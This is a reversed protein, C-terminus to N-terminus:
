FRTVVLKSNTKSKKILKKYKSSKKAPAKVKLTKANKYFAKSGIKSIDKSNIRVYKLKKCNYFAQKGITRVYKGITVSVIKKNGKFAADNIGYVRYKEGFLEVTNPLQVKSKTNRARTVYLVPKGKVYRIRYSVSNKTFSYGEAITASKKIEQPVELSEPYRYYVSSSVGDMSTEAAVLRYTSADIYYAYSITYGQETQKASLKYCVVNEGKVKYNTEGEYTFSLTKDVDLSFDETDAETDSAEIPYFYYQGKDSIYGMKAKEDIWITSEGPIYMYTVKTNQDMTVEMFLEGNIVMGVEIVKIEKMANEVENLISDARSDAAQVKGGLVILLLLISLIIRKKM